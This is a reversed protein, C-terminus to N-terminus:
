PRPSERDCSSHNDLYKASQGPDRLAPENAGGSTDLPDGSMSDTKSMADV